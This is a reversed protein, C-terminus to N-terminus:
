GFCVQGEIGRTGYFKPCSVKKKLLFDTSDLVTKNYEKKNLASKYKIPCPNIRINNGQYVM